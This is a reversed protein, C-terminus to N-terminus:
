RRNRRLMEVTYEPFYREIESIEFRPLVSERPERELLFRISEEVLAQPSLAGRLDRASAPSLTVEHTTAGPDDGIVVRCTWAQGMPECSVSISQEAGANGGPSM